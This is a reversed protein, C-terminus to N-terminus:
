QNKLEEEIRLKEYLDAFEKAQDSDCADSALAACAMMLARVEKKSLEIKM